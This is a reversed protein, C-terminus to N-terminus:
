CATRPRSWTRSSSTPARSMALTYSEITHEPRYGSAGRHGIVLPAANPEGAVADVIPLSTSLSLLIATSLLIHRPM